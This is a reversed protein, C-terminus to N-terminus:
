DCSDIREPLRAWSPCANRISRIRELNDKVMTVAVANEKNPETRYPLSYYRRYFMNGRRLNQLRGSAITRGIKKSFQDKPSCFAASAVVEKFNVQQVLKYAVTVHGRGYPMHFFRVETERESM